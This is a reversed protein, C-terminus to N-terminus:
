YKGQLQTSIELLELIEAYKTAFSFLFGCKWFKKLYKARFNSNTTLFDGNQM